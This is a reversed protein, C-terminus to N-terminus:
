RSLSLTATPLGSVKYDLAWDSDSWFDHTTGVGSRDTWVFTATGTANWEHGTGTSAVTRFIATTTATARKNIKISIADGASAGVSLDGRLEYTKTAGAAILQEEDPIFSVRSGGTYYNYVDPNQGSAIVQGGTTSATIEDGTAVNFVDLNTIYSIGISTATDDTSTGIYVIGDTSSADDGHEGVTCSVGHYTVSGSIDFVVKSWGIAGKEDATVTWRYLVKEGAGLVTSPLSAAALTPKSKYLIQVNGCIEAATTPWISNGSSSGMATTTSLCLKPADGSTVGTQDATRMGSLDAKVTLTKTEGAPITWYDETPLTFTTTAYALGRDVLNQSGGLQTTGDWLSITGFDANTSTGMIRKIEFSKVLINERSAEYDVKLFTVDDRGASGVSVMGIEPTAANAAATLTGSSALLVWNVKSDGNESYNVGGLSPINLKADPTANSDLGVFVV